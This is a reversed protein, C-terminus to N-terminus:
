HTRATDVGRVTADRHNVRLAPSAITHGHCRLDQEHPPPVDIQSPVGAGETRGSERRKNSRHDTPAHAGYGSTSCDGEAGPDSSPTKKARRRAACMVVMALVDTLSLTLVPTTTPFGL